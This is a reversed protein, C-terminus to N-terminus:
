LVDELVEVVRQAQMPKIFFDDAGARMAEIVQMEQGLAGAMVVKAKPHKGKIAKLAEIGNMLPMALDLTVIDPKLKDYMEVAEQGNEAEGVVDYGSRLLLDKLIMRTHASDEAILIKARM